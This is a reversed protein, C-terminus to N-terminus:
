QFDLVSLDPHRFGVARILHADRDSLEAAGVIIERNGTKWMSQNNDNFLPVDLIFIWAGTYICSFMPAKEYINFSM